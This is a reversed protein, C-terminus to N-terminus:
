EIVSSFLGLRGLTGSQLAEVVQIESLSRLWHGLVACLTASHLVGMPSAVPLLLHADFEM